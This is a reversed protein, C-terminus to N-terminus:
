EERQCVIVKQEPDQLDGTLEFISELRKRLDVVEEQSAM